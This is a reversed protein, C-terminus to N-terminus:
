VEISIAAAGSRTLCITVGRNGGDDDGELAM